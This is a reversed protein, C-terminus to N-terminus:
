RSSAPAALFDGQEVIRRTKEQRYEFLRRSKEELASGGLARGVWGLPPEYEFEDRLLTGGAGDDLFRHRHYWSAFPGSVQRDAFGRPPDYETHEAVWRIPLLGLWTRLVVRSGARISDGGEVLEVREWPPTLRELVRPSEHFAFVVAPPAAIRTERVFQM